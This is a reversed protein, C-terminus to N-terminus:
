QHTMGGIEGFGCAQCSIFAAWGRSIVGSVFIANNGKLQQSSCIGLLLLLLLLLVVM